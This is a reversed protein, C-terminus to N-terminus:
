FLMDCPDTPPPPGAKAKKAKPTAKPTPTAPTAGNLVEEVTSTALQIGVMTDLIRNINVAYQIGKIKVLFKSARLHAEVEKRSIGKATYYVALRYDQLKTTRTRTAMVAGKIKLTVVALFRYDM